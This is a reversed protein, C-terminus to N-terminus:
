LQGREVTRLPLECRHREISQVVDGDLGGIEFRRAVKVAVNEPEFDPEAGIESKRTIPEIAAIHRNDMQHRFAARDAAAGGGIGPREVMERKEGAIEVPHLRAEFRLADGKAFVM